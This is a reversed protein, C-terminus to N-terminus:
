QAHANVFSEKSQQAVVFILFLFPDWGRPSYQRKKFRTITSKVFQNNTHRSCDKSIPPVEDLFFSTSPEPISFSSLNGQYYHPGHTILTCQSSQSLREYIKEEFLDEQILCVHLKGDRQCKKPAM